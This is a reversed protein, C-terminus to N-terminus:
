AAWVAWGLIEFFFQNRENKSLQFITQFLGSKTLRNKKTRFLGKKVRFHDFILSIQPAFFKELLGSDANKSWNQALFPLMAKM